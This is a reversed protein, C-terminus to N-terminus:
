NIYISFYFISTQSNYSFYSNVNNDARIKTVCSGPQEQHDVVVTMLATKAVAVVVVVLVMGVDAEIAADVYM